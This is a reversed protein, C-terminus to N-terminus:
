NKYTQLKKKLQRNVTNEFDDNGIIEIVVRNVKSVLLGKGSKLRLM